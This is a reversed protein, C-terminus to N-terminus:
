ETGLDRMTFIQSWMGLMLRHIEGDVVVTEKQM